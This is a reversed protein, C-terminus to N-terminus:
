FESIAYLTESIEYTFTEKSNKIIDPAMDVILHSLARRAIAADLSNPRGLRKERELWLAADQVAWPHWLIVIIEDTKWTTGTDDVFYVACQVNDQTYGYDRESVEELATPITDLIEKPIVFGTDREARLLASYVQFRMSDVVHEGPGQDGFSRTFTRWGHLHPNFNASLWEALQRIREDNSWRNAPDGGARADLLLILEMTTPYVAADDPDVQRPFSNLAIGDANRFQHLIEDTVGFWRTLDASGQPTKFAPHMSAKVLGARMWMVPESMTVKKREWGYPLGDPGRHISNPDFMRALMTQAWSLEVGDSACEPCAFIAAITQSTAWSDLSPSLQYDISIDGEKFFRRQVEASLQTRVRSATAHIEDDTHLPRFVSLGRQDITERVFQGGPVKLGFDCAGLYGVLLLVGLAAALYRKRLRLRKKRKLAATLFERATESCTFAKSVYELQTGTPLGDPARGSAVWASAYAELVDRRRLEDAHERIWNQLKPWERILAEHVLDVQYGAGENTITLIRMFAPSYGSLATLGGSLYTLVAEAMRAEGMAALVEARSANRRIYLSTQGSMHPNSTDVAERILCLLAIGAMKRAESPLRDIVVDASLTLAGTVGNFVEYSRHTFLNGQRTEWMAYLVHAVLPLGGKCASADALIREILGAEWELGAAASPGEIAARLGVASLSPLHCRIAHSTLMAELSPLASFHSLLDSRITTILYFEVDLDKVAASLLTDLQGSQEADGVLFVEELQDVVLLFGVKAPAGERVLNALASVSGALETTIGDVTRHEALDDRLASYVAQALNRLPNIGPRMVGVRWDALGLDAAARRMAPVVGAKAFSSKGNGSAGEIQVWRRKDKATARVRGVLEQTEDARGFFYPALSEDFSDLDPFPCQAKELPPRLGLLLSITAFHEPTADIPAVPLKYAQFRSLFAPLVAANVTPMLFPIIRFSPQAVHRNIAIDLESQSWGSIASSGVLALLGDATTLERELTKLWEAGYRIDEDFFLDVGVARLGSALARAADRNEGGFSLFYRGM